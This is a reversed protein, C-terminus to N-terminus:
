LAAINTGAAEGAFVFLKNTKGGFTQASDLEFRDSNSTSPGLSAFLVRFFCTAAATFAGSLFGFLAIALELVPLTATVVPDVRRLENGALSTDAGIRDTGIVCASVAARSRERWDAKPFESIAGGSLAPM